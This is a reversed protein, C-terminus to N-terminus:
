RRSFIGDNQMCFAECFSFHFEVTKISGTTRRRPGDTYGNQRTMMAIRAADKLWRRRRGLSHCQCVQVRWDPLRSRAIKLITSEQKINNNITAFLNRRRRRGWGRRDGATDACFMMIESVIITKKCLSCVLFVAFATATNM